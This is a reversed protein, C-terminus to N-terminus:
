QRVRLLRLLAVNAQPACIVRDVQGTVKLNMSLAMNLLAFYHKGESTTADFGVFSTVSACPPTNAVNCTLEVHVNQDGTASIQVVNCNIFDDAHAFRINFLFVFLFIIKINNKM